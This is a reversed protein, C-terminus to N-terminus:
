KIGTARGLRNGVVRRTRKLAEYERHISSSKPKGFAAKGAKRYARDVTKYETRLKKVVSPAAKRHSKTKKRTMNTKKEQAPM